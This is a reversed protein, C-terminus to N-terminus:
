GVGTQAKQCAFVVVLPASSNRVDHTGREEARNNMVNLFVYDMMCKLPWFFDPKPGALLGGRTGGRLKDHDRPLELGSPVVLHGRLPKMFLSM